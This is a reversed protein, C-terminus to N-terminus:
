KKWAVIAKDNKDFVLIKIGDEEIADRFFEEEMFVKFIAEPVALFLLRDPENERIIRGYNRYQGVAEHFSYVVSARAFGKIEVAIKEVGREAAIWREAGLDAELEVRGKKLSLPDDTITWGEKLLATRVHEHYLDRAM